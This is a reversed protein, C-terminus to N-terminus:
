PAAPPEFAVEGTERDCRAWGEAGDSVGADRALWWAAVERPLAKWLGEREAIADLFAQYIAFRREEGLYGPDPHSVCQILGHAAELRDVQRLWLDPSRHGLLTFLTHDQPLTYPLEVLEDIMYPWPSCCGGPQPEYPDSLPVTCDYSVPLEPLWDVVRHTAPSRFGSAGFNRVAERLAPQQAEFQERSSFLSRDHFIGHVGIEFGRARLESVIGWDIAYWQAVINFSSRLGRQEEADAVRVAGRLGDASEVDHTLILAARSREPWFWRFSLSSRGAALTACRVYFALLRPVSDDYPWRPFDPLDQWRVLARRGALQVNRPILRKVRYFAELLRPSLRRQSYAASWRELVYNEFVEEFSFPVCVRGTASDVGATIARGDSVSFQAFPSGTATCDRGLRAFLQWEGHTLRRMPGTGVSSVIAPGGTDEAGDELIPPADVAALM